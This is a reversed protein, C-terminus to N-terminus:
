ASSKSAGASKKPVAQPYKEPDLGQAEMRYRHAERDEKSVRAKKDETNIWKGEVKKMTKLHHPQVYVPPEEPVEVENAM